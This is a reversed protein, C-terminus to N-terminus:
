EEKGKIKFHYVTLFMPPVTDSLREQHLMELGLLIFRSKTPSPAGFLGIENIVNSGEFTKSTESM